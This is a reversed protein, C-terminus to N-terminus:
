ASRGVEFWQVGNHILTLTNNAATTFTGGGNLRMANATGTSSFVSLVGSFILTVTRGAWGGNLGGFNTTGTVNFATGGAPLNLPDASAVSQIVMNTGAISNGAALTAPDDLGGFMLANSTTVNLPQTVTEYRLGQRTVRSTGASVTIGNSLSRLIVNSVLVDGGAIWIGHTAASWIAGGIIATCVGSTADVKIGALVQNACKPSIIQGERGGGASCAIEIGISNAYTGTGDHGPSLLTYTNVNEIKHGRLYGYSFCNTSQLWDAVNKFHYAAGSRDAWGAPNTGAITGFPWAHCERIFPNDLCNEVYIGALNDHHLHEIRPRQWNVSSYAQAFGIILCRSVGVDDGGATIATGAYAASTEAPFTMGKRHILLGTLSSGGKMTITVASNVLLAGGLDGYPANNNDDPSGVFEHPGVLSVNAKVTLATDILCRMDNEITVTGGATGLSDIAAQIFPTDNTVGNGVAGFDKASVTDRLKAQVTRAVAGIGAQLFGALASGGSAALDTRFAADNGTGSSAVPNGNGDFALYKGARSAQEPFSGLIETIDTDSLGIKRGISTRLQRIMAVIKSLEVNLSEIQFPGSLPFDTVREIPVDHVITIIEGASAGPAGLTISGGLDSNAGSVSFQSSSAPSLAYVLETDGNYVRLEAASFFTFPVSFATQGATATYQRRAETDNIDLAM